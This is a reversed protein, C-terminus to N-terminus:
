WRRTRYNILRVCDRQPLILTVAPSYEKKSEGPSFRNGQRKCRRSAEWM